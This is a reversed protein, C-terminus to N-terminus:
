TTATWNLVLPVNQGQLSADVSTTPWVFRLTVRAVEGTALKGLDLTGVGALTGSYLQKNSVPSTQTVTLQLTRVLLSTGIGSFGLSFTAPVQRNTLAASGSQDSGPKLTTTDVIAGTPAVDFVVNGMTIKAPNTSSSTFAAVSISTGAVLIALLVLVVVTLVRPDRRLKKWTGQEADSV